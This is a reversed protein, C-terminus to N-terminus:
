FPIEEKDIDLVNGEKWPQFTKAKMSSREEGTTKDRWSASSVVAFLPKGKIDSEELEPLIPVNKTVEKGDITITIDKNPCDFGILQCFSLYNENGGPNSKLHSHESASPTVFFFVGNAYIDRGDYISGNVDGNPGKFTHGSVEKAVKLTLNYVNALYKGRVVVNKRLVCKTVHCPYIGEVLPTNDNMTPDYYEEVM